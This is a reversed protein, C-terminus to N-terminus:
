KTVLNPDLGQQQYMPYAVEPQTLDPFPTLAPTKHVVLGTGPLSPRPAPHAPLAAPVCAVAVPWVLLLVGLRM